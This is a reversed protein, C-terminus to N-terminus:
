VKNIRVKIIIAKNRMKMKEYINNRLRNILIKSSQVKNIVKLNQILIKMSNIKKKLPDLFDHKNNYIKMMKFIIILNSRRFNIKMNMQMMM